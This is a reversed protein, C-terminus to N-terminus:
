RNKNDHFKANESITLEPKIRVVAGPGLRDIERRPVLLFSQGVIVHDASAHRELNRLLANSNGDGQPFVQYFDGPLQSVERDKGKGPVIARPNSLVLGIILKGNM